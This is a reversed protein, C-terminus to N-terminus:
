KADDKRVNNAINQLVSNVFTVKKEPYFCSALDVYESIIVKTPVDKMHKLEFVGSRLIPWMVDSLQEIKWDEKLCLKIEEDLEEPAKTVGSVLKEMFGVDAKDRYSTIKQDTESLLYNDLLKNTLDNIAIKGQYFNYQYLSQIAILRSISRKPLSNETYKITPM